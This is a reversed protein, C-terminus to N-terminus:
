PLYRGVGRALWRAGCRRHSIPRIRGNQIISPNALARFWRPSHSLDSPRRGPPTRAATRGGALAARAGDLDGKDILTQAQQGFSVLSAPGRRLRDIEARLRVLENAKEDLRKPIDQDPVGAEGMKVLIARLSALEVGKESATLVLLRELKDDLPKQSETFLPKQAEVLRQAVKEEDPSPPSILAQVGKFAIIIVVVIAAIRPLKPIINWQQESRITPLQRAYFATPRRQEPYESIFDQTRVYLLASRDLPKAITIHNADIPIPPDGPLGPDSSAEDVIVGAPTDQTEYFIRHHLKDRRDDALGRYSVNIQRLSPDNAILSRATASPWTLFRARDLWTAQRSGTHPVAIFIMQRVQELLEAAQPRRGQQQQLDLMMQKVILGGLSHCIFTIPNTRFSREGLMCELISVARDQLPMATGDACILTATAHIGFHCTALSVPEGLV